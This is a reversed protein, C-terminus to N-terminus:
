NERKKLNEYKLLENNVPKPHEPLDIKLKKVVLVDTNIKNIPSNNQNVAGVKRRVTHLLNFSLTESKVVLKNTSDLISFSATHSGYEVNKVSINMGSISADVLAGDIYFAIHHAEDLSPQINIVFDAYGGNNRIVGDHEPQAFTVTTYGDSQANNENNNENSHFTVKPSKMNISQGETMPIEKADPSPKDSYTIKGNKDVTKYLIRKEEAHASNLYITLIISIFVLLGNYKM